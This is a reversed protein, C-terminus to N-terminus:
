LSFLPGLEMVWLFCPVPCCFPTCTLTFDYHSYSFCSRALQLSTCFFFSMLQESSNKEITFNTVMLTTRFMTATSSTCRSGNSTIVVKRWPSKHSSMQMSCGYPYSISPLSSITHLNLLLKYPHFWAGIYHDILNSLNINSFPYLLNWVSWQQSQLVKSSSYMVNNKYTSSISITSNLM